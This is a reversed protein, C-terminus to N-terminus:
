CSVAPKIGYGSVRRTNKCHISQDKLSQLVSNSLTIDHLKKDICFNKVLGQKILEYWSIEVWGITRYIAFRDVCHFIEKRIKRLILWKPLVDDNLRELGCHIGKVHKTSELTKIIVRDIVALPQIYGFLHYENNHGKADSLALPLTNETNKETDAMINGRINSFIIVKQLEQLM